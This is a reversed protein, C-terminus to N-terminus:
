NNSEKKAANAPLESLQSNAQAHVKEILDFVQNYPLNSLSKIITNIEQVSLKLTVNEMNETKLHRIKTQGFM